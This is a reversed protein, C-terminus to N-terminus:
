WHLVDDIACGRLTWPTTIDRQKIEM